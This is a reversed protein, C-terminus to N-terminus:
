LQRRLLIALAKGILKLYDDTMVMEGDDLAEDLRMTITDGGGFAQNIKTVEVMPLEIIEALGFDKLNSLVHQAGNQYALLPLYGVLPLNIGECYKDAAIEIKRIMEKSM